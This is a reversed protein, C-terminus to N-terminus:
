ALHFVCDLEVRCGHSGPRFSRTQRGRIESVEQHVLTVKRSTYASCAHLAQALDDPNERRCGLRIVVHSDRDLVLGLSRWMAGIFRWYRDRSEHRDDPSIRGRTPRPPGGLFWLRLWQDEEFSTVDMYPPSTVACRIPDHRHHKLDSPFLRVDTELVLASGEPPLSTYRFSARDRLLAFVDRTPPTLGRRRWFEVSYGPKTSITRPMQNSLYYPSKASEGHLSGLVLAAIMTDVASRRWNLTARLYLLQALTSPSYAFHFFEPLTTIVRTWKAADYRREVFTIRRRLSGLPPPNTKARTVCYAVPNIDGAIARRGMLLAQFPTTGRGCFPDLVTEGPQSLAEIWREAFSEPFM